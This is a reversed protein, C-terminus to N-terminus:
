KLKHSIVEGGSNADVQCAIEVARKPNAGAMFAGVAIGGGSGIGYFGREILMEFTDSSVGYLGDKRLIMAAFGEGKPKAGKKGESYWRLWALADRVNGALGILEDEHRYVKTMPFWETDATCKSDSVMVGHKLSAFVTTM